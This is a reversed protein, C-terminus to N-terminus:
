GKGTFVIRFADPDSSLLTWVASVNTKAPCQLTAVFGEGLAAFARAAIIYTTGAAADAGAVARTQVLESPTRFPAVDDKVFGAIEDPTTGFQAALLEDSLASDGAAADETTAGHWYGITCGTEDSRYSWSGDGDDTTLVSFGKAGALTDAWAASQSPDLLEGDHFTIQVIPSSSGSPTPTPSASPAPAATCGTLAILVGAALLAALGRTRARTM